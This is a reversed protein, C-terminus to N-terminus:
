PSRPHFPTTERQPTEHVKGFMESTAAHYVRVMDRLKSHRLVELIKTTGRCNIDMTHEPMQFSLEVFSQAALHYVEVRDAHSEELEAVVRRLSTDDLLDGKLLTLNPHNRLHQIRELTQSGSAHRYMGWVRYGKSLLLEALYSGDQGTIGTIWAARTM